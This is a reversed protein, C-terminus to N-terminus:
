RIFQPHEPIELVPPLRLAISISLPSVTLMEKIMGTALTYSRAQGDNQLRIRGTSDRYCDVSWGGMLVPAERYIEELFFTFHVDELHDAPIWLRAPPQLNPGTSYIAELAIEGETAQLYSFEHIERSPYRLDIVQLRGKNDYSYSNQSMRVEPYSTTDFREAELLRDGDWVTEQRRALDSTVRSERREAMIM